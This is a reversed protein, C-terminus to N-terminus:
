TGVRLLPHLFDNQDRGEGQAPQHVLWPRLARRGIRHPGRGMRGMVRRGGKVLRQQQLRGGLDERM